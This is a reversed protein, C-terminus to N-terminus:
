QRGRANKWRRVDSEFDALLQDIDSFLYPQELNDMHKHHGKLGHNDYLVAPKRMEQPVFALRYRVGERYSRSFPVSWVVLELLDEQEDTFKKRLLLRGKM